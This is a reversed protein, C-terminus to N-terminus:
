VRLFFSHDAFPTSGVQLVGCTRVLPDTTKKKKKTSVTTKKRCVFPHLRASTNVGFKVGSNEHNLGPFFTFDIQCNILLNSIIM